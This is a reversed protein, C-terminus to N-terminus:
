KEYHFIAGGPCEHLRLGRVKCRQQMEFRPGRVDEAPVLKSFQKEAELIRSSQGSCEASIVKKAIKKWPATKCTSQTRPM